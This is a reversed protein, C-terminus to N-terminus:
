IDELRADHCLQLEMVWRHHALALPLLKDLFYPSPLDSLLMMDHVDGLLLIHPWQGAHRTDVQGMGEDHETNAGLTPGNGQQQSGNMNNEGSM